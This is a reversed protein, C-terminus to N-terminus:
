SATLPQDCDVCALRASARAYAKVDCCGCVFRTRTNKATSTNAGAGSTPDNPNLRLDVGRSDRWTISKGAILLERCVIDFPGGEIVYDSVRYGTRKGGPQGTVSPMLGIQEMRDAWKSDHYGPAGLGGKRNRDGYLHRWLHCMEHALTQYCGATGQAAFWVPNMAIEHAVIGGEDRFAGACFYGLVRPRRTFTLMVNPLEGGFLRENFFDLAGQWEGYAEATPMRPHSNPQVAFEGTEQQHAPVPQDRKSLNRSM